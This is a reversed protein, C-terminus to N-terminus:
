DANNNEMHAGSAIAKAAALYAANLDGVKARPKQLWAVVKAREGGAKLDAIHTRIRAYDTEPLVVALEWLARELAAILDDMTKGKMMWAKCNLGHSKEVPGTMVM